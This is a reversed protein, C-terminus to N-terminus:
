IEFRNPPKFSRNITDASVTRQINSPSQQALQTNTMQQNMSNNNNVYSFKLNTKPGVPSTGNISGVANFASYTAAEINSPSNNTAIQNTNSVLGNATYPRKINIQEIVSPNLMSQQKDGANFYSNAKLLTSKPSLPIKSLNYQNTDNTTNLNSNVPNYRYLNPDTLNPKFKSTNNVVGNTASNFDNLKAAQYERFSNENYKLNTYTSDVSPSHLPTTITNIKTAPPPKNAQTQNSMSYFQLPSNNLQARNLQTLNTHNINSQSHAQETTNSTNSAPLILSTPSMTPTTTTKPSTIIAGNQKTRQLYEKRKQSLVAYGGTSLINNATITGPYIPPKESDKM